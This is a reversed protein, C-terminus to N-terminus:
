RVQFYPSGLVLAVLEPLKDRTSWDLGHVREHSSKGLFSLLAARHASKWRTFTLRTTLSDVVEAWTGPLKAPLLSRVPPTRLAHTWGGSAANYHMTWRAVQGSPSAWASAVDPFGNPQPWSLPQNGSQASVWVLTALGATGHTEPLCGLVRYTAAIDEFPRRAKAGHSVAFEHSAFLARLVVDIRTGSALYNHALRHVLAASPADSVFRVALRTAVNAATAPHHALYHLYSKLVEPGAGPSANAASWGLVRLPGVYHLEPRYVMAGHPGVSLGTLVRASAKVDAESFGSALGVTHLELLERGLNENPAAATSQDASLFKLMAPHKVVASLLNEFRGLANPRVADHDLSARCDWLDPGNFVSFHDAWTSTMMEQLQRSSWVARGITLATLDTVCAFKAAGSLSSRRQETTLALRPFRKVLRDGLPDALTGPRLQRDLWRRTGLRSLEALSAPTPGFTARRLLHLHQPTPLATV